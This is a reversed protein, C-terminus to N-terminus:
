DNLAYVVEVSSTFELSWPKKLKATPATCNKSAYLVVWCLPRSGGHATMRKGPNFALSGVGSVKEGRKNSYKVPTCPPQSTSGSAHITRGRGYAREYLILGFDADDSNVGTSWLILAIATFISLRM